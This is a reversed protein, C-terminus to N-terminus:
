VCIKTAFKKKILYNVDSFYVLNIANIFKDKYVSNKELLDYCGKTKSSLDIKLGDFDINKDTKKIDCYYKQFIYLYNKDFINKLEKSSDCATLYTNKNSNERSYSQSNSHSYRRSKEHKHHIHKEKNHSHSKERKQYIHNSHERENHHSHRKESNNYNQHENKNQYYKKRDNYTNGKNQYSSNQYHNSSNHLKITKNGIKYEKQNRTSSM